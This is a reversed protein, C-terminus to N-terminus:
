SGGAGAATIMQLTRAPLTVAHITHEGPRVTLTVADQFGFHDNSLQVAYSGAPVVLQGNDSSGIRRGGAVIELPIRSYISLFGVGAGAAAEAEAAPAASSASPSNSGSAASPASSGGPGPAVAASVGAAARSKFALLLSGATAVVMVSAAIAMAIRRGNGSHRPRPQPGTTGAPADAMDRAM